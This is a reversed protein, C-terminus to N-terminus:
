NVASGSLSTLWATPQRHRYHSQWLFTVASSCLKLHSVMTHRNIALLDTFITVANSGLASIAVAINHHSSLPWSPSLRTVAVSAYLPWPITTFPKRALKVANGHTDGAKEMTDSYVTFGRTTLSDTATSCYSSPTSLVTSFLDWCEGKPKVTGDTLGLIIAIYFLLKNFMFFFKFFLHKEKLHHYYPLAKKNNEDRKVKYNPAKHQKVMLLLYNLAVRM